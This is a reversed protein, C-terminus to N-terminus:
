VKLTKNSIRKNMEINRDEAGMDKTEELFADMSGPKATGTGDGGGAGGSAKKLLPTYFEPLVEGITLDALTTKNKLVEGDKLFQVAGKDTLRPDIDPMIMRLVMEKSVDFSGVIGNLLQGKVNSSDAQKKFSLKSEDLDAQIGTINEQLKVKDAELGKITENPEKNAGELVSTGHQDLLSKLNRTSEKYGMDRALDKVAKEAGATRLNTKFTEEQDLTRVIIDDTKVVMEPIEITVNQENAIADKITGDPLDMAKELAAVNEIM